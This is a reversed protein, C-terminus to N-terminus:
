TTVLASERQGEVRHADFLEGVAFPKALARLLPSVLGRCEPSMEHAILADKYGRTSKVVSWRASESGPPSEAGVRGWPVCAALVTM